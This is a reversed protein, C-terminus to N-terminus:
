NKRGDAKSWQSQYRNLIRYVFRGYHKQRKILINTLRCGLWLVFFGLIFFSFFFSFLNFTQWETAMLFLSRLFRKASQNAMVLSLSLSFILLSLLLLLNLPPESRPKVPPEQGM